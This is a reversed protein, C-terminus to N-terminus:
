DNVATRQIANNLLWTSNNNWDQVSNSVFDFDIDAYLPMDPLLYNWREMFDLWHRSFTDRDGPTTTRMAVAYGYLIECAFFNPNQTGFFAPNTTTALWLQHPVGFGLGMNFMTFFPEDIGSRSAHSLVSDVRTENIQLGVAAAEGPLFIAILDSVTNGTSALWEVILPMLEGDVMKHRVNGDGHVFPGGNADYVWGNDILLQEARVPNFDWTDIRAYLEDRNELYVWQSLAYQGHILAGHGGTFQRAFEDRDLLLTLAQRVHAFQTPGMDGHFRIMGYGDRPYYVYWHDGQRALDLGPEINHGGRVGSIVDLEGTALSDILVASAVERMIITQVRPRFGDFTGIFNPNAELVLVNASEDFSSFMYPGATVSPAFRFGTTPNNVSEQLLEFTFNDCLFVGYGDDSMTVGPAIVHMPLAYVNIFIEEFFFPLHDAAITVSFTYDDDGLGLGAHYYTEGNTWDSFGYLRFGEASSTGLERFAPSTMFLWTFVFSQATIPEGDSFLLDDYITVTYTRTGDANDVYDVNRVVMPCPFLAGGFDHRVLRLYMLERAQSNPVPNSWGFLGINSDPHTSSAWTITGSPAPFTALDALIQDRTRGDRMGYTGPVIFAGEPAPPAPTDPTAPATAQQGTAPAAPASEDPQVVAPPACAVLFMTVVMFSAVILKKM